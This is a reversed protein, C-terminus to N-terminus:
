RGAGRTQVLIVSQADQYDTEWGIEHTLAKALPAAPPLAVSRIGLDNLKRRWGEETKYLTAFDNMFADGYLDTRGDVWVFYRPYLKWIFYGGWNYNNLLPTPTPHTLLYTVAGAPFNKSEIEPQRRAVRVVNVAFLLMATTFLVFNLRTRTTSSNAEVLLSRAWSHQALVESILQCLVPVTVLVFIPIHRISRMAGLTTLILLLVIHPLPLSRRVLLLVFTAAVLLFFLLFRPEYLGPPRWESVYRPLSRLQLTYIPYRYLAVGNPNVLVALSTVILVLSLASFPPVPTTDAPKNRLLKNLSGLWYAGIIVLGIAFGGHLNAWLLMLPPLLWLLVPRVCARELVLLFLSALTLSFVQPRVGWTPVSAVAGLLTLLGAIYPKGVCRCYLFFYALVTILAFALILLVPGGVRYAGYFFEETLWEHAIWPKGHCPYSFPDVRPISRTQWILEGTRLHWWFDPDTLDRTALSFIGAFLIVPFVFRSAAKPPV